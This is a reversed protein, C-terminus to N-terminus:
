QLYTANSRSLDDSKRYDEQLLQTKDMDSSLSTHTAEIPRGM